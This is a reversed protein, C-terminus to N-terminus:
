ESSKVPRIFTLTRHVANTGLEIIFVEKISELTQITEELSWDLGARHIVRHLLRKFFLALLFQRNLFFQFLSIQLEEVTELIPFIVIHTRFNQFDIHFLQYKV